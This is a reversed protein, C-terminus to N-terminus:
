DVTKRGVRSTLKAYIGKQLSSVFKELLTVGLLILVTLISLIISAVYRELGILVGIGALIWIVSASTIGIVIGGRTLIVGAGIFGIGTIVQGIIRTPDIDSGQVLKIASVFVYTGLCILISTRIGAPKDSLQRELGIILGCLIATCIGEPQLPSLLTQSIL